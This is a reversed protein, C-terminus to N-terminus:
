NNMGDGKKLKFKNFPKPKRNLLARALCSDFVDLFKIIFSKFCVVFVEWLRVLQSM